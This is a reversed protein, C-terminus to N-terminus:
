NFVVRMLQVYDGVEMDSDKPVTIVKQIKKGNRLARVRVITRTEM